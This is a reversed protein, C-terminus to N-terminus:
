RRRRAFPATSGNDSRRRSRAPTRRRRRRGGCLSVMATYVIGIGGRRRRWEAGRISTPHISVADIPCRDSRRIRGIGRDVVGMVGMMMRIKAANMGLRLRGRRGGGGGVGLARRRIRHRTYSIINPILRHNLLGFSLLPLRSPSSSSFSRQPSKLHLLPLRRPLPHPVPNTSSSHHILLPIISSNKSSSSTSPRRRSRQRRIARRSFLARM